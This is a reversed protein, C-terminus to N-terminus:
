PRRGRCRCSCRRRRGRSCRSRPSRGRRSPGRRGSGRRRPRAPSRRRRRERAEDRRREVLHDADRLLHLPAAELEWEEDATRGGRLLVGRNADGGLVVLRGHVDEIRRADDADDAVQQVALAARPEVGLVAHLLVPQAREVRLLRALRHERDAFRSSAPRADLPLCLIERRGREGAQPDGLLRDRRQAVVDVPREEEVRPLELAAIRRDEVVRLLSLDRAVQERIRVLQEVLDGGLARQLCAADVSEPRRVGLVVVEDDVAVDAERHEPLLGIM